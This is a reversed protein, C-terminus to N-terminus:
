QLILLRPLERSRPSIDSDISTAEGDWDVASVMRAYLKYEGPLTVLNGEVDKTLRGGKWLYRSGERDPDEVLFFDDEGASIDWRHVEPAALLQISLLVASIMSIEKEFIM